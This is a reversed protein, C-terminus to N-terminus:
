QGAGIMIRLIEQDTERMGDHGLRGVNAITNEVGKTIIGDGGKFQRHGSRYMACGLIGAEVSLAIKAACSSKAGDCVLGSSMALANVIAHSIDVYHGGM